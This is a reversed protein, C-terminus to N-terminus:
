VASRGHDLVRPDVRLRSRAVADLNLSFAIGSGRRFLCVAAGLQCGPDVDTVTLVARDRVWAILRLRDATPLAGMYVVDCPQGGTISAITARATAPAASQGPIEPQLMPILAPRGITCVLLRRPQGGGPWRVYSIIGGVLRSVAGAEGGSREDVITQAATPVAAPATAAIGTAIVLAAIVNWV